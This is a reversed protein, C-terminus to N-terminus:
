PRSDLAGGALEVGGLAGRAREPLPLLGRRLGALMVVCALGAHEGYPDLLEATEHLEVPRGKLATALKVLALDGVIGHTWQGGGELAVVGVTWPGVTREAQLRAALEAGPVARLREVDLTRLIRVLAAARKPALGLRCLEAPALAAIQERAPPEWLGSAPDRRSVRRIVRAEIARAERATILQGCIARLLAHTVTALRIPRLGRLARVSRGLFPDDRFASQFPTPDDDFALLFRLAELGDDSESELLCRGEPLQRAAVREVGAPTRVLATLQGDRWRRTLDGHGAVSLRLDFPGAARAILSTV